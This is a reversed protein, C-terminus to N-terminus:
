PTARFVDQFASFMGECADRLQQPSPYDNNFSQFGLKITTFAIGCLVTAERQEELKTKRAAPHTHLYKTILKELESNTQHFRGFHQQMLVPDKEWIERRRKQTSASFYEDRTPDFILKVLMSLVANPLDEHETSLFAEKEQQTPKRPGTGLVADDKTAFYNFFTRKSVGVPECIEEVTVNSFGRELVLRTASDEIAQHTRIKKIKRHSEMPVARNGCANRNIRAM